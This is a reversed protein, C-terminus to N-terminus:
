RALGPAFSRPRFKKNLMAGRSGLYNGGGWDKIRTIEDNDECILLVYNDILNYTNDTETRLNSWSGAVPKYNVMLQNGVKRFMWSDGSATEQAIDTGIQAGLAGGNILHLMFFDGTPFAVYTLQYGNITPNSIVMIKLEALDNAKASNTFYFEYDSRYLEPFFYNAVVGGPTPAAANGQIEWDTGSPHDAWVQWHVPLPTGNIGAFTDLIPTSPYPYIM